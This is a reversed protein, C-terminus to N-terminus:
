LKNNIINEFEQSKNKEGISSYFNKLLKLASIKWISDKNILPNLTELILQEKENDNKNQANDRMLYISKKLRLLNRQEIKIKKLSILQDFYKIIGNDDILKNDIILNLAAPSYFKNKKNIINLLLEKAEQNKNQSLLIKSKTFEESIILNKNKKLETTIIFISIITILILTIFILKRINEQLFDKLNFKKKNKVQDINM